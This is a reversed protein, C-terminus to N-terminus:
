PADRISGREQHQSRWRWPETQGPVSWLGIGQRRAEAELQAYDTRAPKGHYRYVWALGKRIQAANVDTAGLWVTGLRRGYRDTEEGTITVNRQAVMSTLEQRSRQGFPQNKEPADIGALRVRTLQNGGGLIEVTDGDLVRVIRGNIDASAQYTVILLTILYLKRFM